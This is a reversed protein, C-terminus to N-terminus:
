PMLLDMKEIASLRKLLQTRYFFIDLASIAAGERTGKEGALSRYIVVNRQPSLLSSLLSQLYAFASDPIVSLEGTIMVATASTAQVAEALAVALPRLAEKVQASYGPNRALDRVSPAGTREMITKGSAAIELCGKGGCSCIGDKQAKIHALLPLHILENKMLAADFSESWSLFLFGEMDETRSTEAVAEAIARPVSIVPQPLLSTDFSEDSSVVASGYIEANGGKMKDIAHRLNEETDNNRPFREFRLINGLTDSVSVSVSRPKIEFAFVRGASRNISVLTGPRGPSSTDKMGESVLGEKILSQVMEGISVKNIGLRRSLEARSCEGKRLESLVKLRNIVRANDPKSFDMNLNYDDGAEKEM